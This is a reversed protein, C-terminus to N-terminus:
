PEWRMRKNEPQDRGDSDGERDRKIVRPQTINTILKARLDQIISEMQKVKMNLLDNKQELAKLEEDAMEQKTKKRQRYNTCAENNKRRMEAYADATSSPSALSSVSSTPSPLSSIDPSPPSTNSSQSDSTAPPLVPLINIATDPSLTVLQLENTGPVQMFIQPLSPHPMTITYQPTISPKVSLTPLPSLTQSLSLTPLPSLTQSLAPTSATNQLQSSSIVGM